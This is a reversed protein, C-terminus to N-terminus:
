GSPLRRLLEAATLGLVPHLVQPAIEALPQMVFRRAHMLPHPVKLDPADIVRQGFLLLDLDIVRPEWKQRRTRGMEREVELLRALLERPSLTTVVKAAANLFPPSKDPGGIAPNELLASVDPVEIGDTAELRDVADWINRERDGLNAGLAIYADDPVVWLNSSSGAGRWGRTSRASSAASM